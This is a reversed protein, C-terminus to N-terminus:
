ATWGVFGKPRREAARVIWLAVMERMTVSGSSRPAESSPVSSVIRGNRTLGKPASSCGHPESGTLLQEHIGQFFLNATASLHLAQPNVNALVSCRLLELAQLAESPLVTRTPRNNWPVRTTGATSGSTELPAGLRPILVPFVACSLSRRQPLLAVIGNM